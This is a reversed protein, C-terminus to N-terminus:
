LEPESDPDSEPESVLDSVDDYHAMEEKITQRREASEQRRAERWAHDTPRRTKRRAAQVKNNHVRKDDAVSVAWHKAKMHVRLYKIDKFVQGFCAGGQVNCICEVPVCPKRFRKAM